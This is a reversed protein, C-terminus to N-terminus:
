DTAESVDSQPEGGPQWALRRAGRSRTGLSLRIWETHVALTFDPDGLRGELATLLLKYADIRAASTASPERAPGLLTRLLLRAEVAAAAGTPRDRGWPRDQSLEAEITAM